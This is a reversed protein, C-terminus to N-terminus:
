LARKALTLPVYRANGSFCWTRFRSTRSTSCRASLLTLTTWTLPREGPPGTCLGGPPPASPPAERSRSVRVPRGGGAGSLQLFPRAGPDKPEQSLGAPWRPVTPVGRGLRGEAGVWAQGGM